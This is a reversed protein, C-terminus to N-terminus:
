RGFPLHLGRGRPAVVTLGSRRAEEQLRKDNSLVAADLRRAVELIGDDGPLTADEIDADRLWRLAATAARGRAGSGESLRALEDRTVSSLVFTTTGLLGDIEGIDIGDIFPLLAANTDLVVKM